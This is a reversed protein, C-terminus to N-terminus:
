DCVLTYDWIYKASDMVGHVNSDHRLLIRYKPSDYLCIVLKSLCLTTEHFAFYGDRNLVTKYNLFSNLQMLNFVDQTM